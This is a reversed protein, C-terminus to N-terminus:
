ISIKEENIEAERIIAEKEESDYQVSLAKIPLWKM